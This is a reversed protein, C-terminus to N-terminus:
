VAIAGQAQMAKLRKTLKFEWQAGYLLILGIVVPVLMLGALAQIVAGRRSLNAASLYTKGDPLTVALITDHCTHLTAQGGQALARQLYNDLSWSISQNRLIANGVEIVTYKVPGKGQASNGLLKLEGTHREIKPTWWNSM